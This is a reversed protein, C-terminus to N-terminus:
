SAPFSQGVAIDPMLRMREHRRRDRVRLLPREILHWSAAAVVVSLAAESEDTWRGHGYEIFPHYLYLGYSIRGIYEIPRWELARVLWNDQGIAVGPILIAAAPVVLWASLWGAVSLRYLKWCIVPLALLALLAFPAAKAMWAPPKVVTAMLGNVTM